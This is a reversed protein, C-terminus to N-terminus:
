LNYLEINCIILQKLTKILMHKYKSVFYCFEIPYYKRMCKFLMVYVCSSHFLLKDLNLNSSNLDTIFNKSIKCRIELKTVFIKVSINLNMNSMM